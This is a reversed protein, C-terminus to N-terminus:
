FCHAKRRVTELDSKNWAFPQSRSLVGNKRSARVLLGFMAGRSAEALALPLSRRQEATM